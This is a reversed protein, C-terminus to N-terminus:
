PIINPYARKYAPPDLTKKIDERIYYGRTRRKQRDKSGKPRGLKKGSSKYAKIAEERKLDIIRKEFQYLVFLTRFAPNQNNREFSVVDNVSYVSVGITVLEFIGLILEPLSNAWENYSKVLLGDFKKKRLEQLLWQKLPRTNNRTSEEFYIEYEWGKQKVYDTMRFFLDMKTDEDKAPRLYVAVYM